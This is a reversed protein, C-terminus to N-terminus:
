RLWRGLIWNRLSLWIELGIWGIGDWSGSYNFVRGLLFVESISDGGWCLSGAEGSIGMRMRLQRMHRM